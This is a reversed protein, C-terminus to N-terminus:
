RTMVTRLLVPVLPCCKLASTSREVKPM